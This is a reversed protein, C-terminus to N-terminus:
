NKLKKFIFYCLPISAQSIFKIQTLITGDKNRNSQFCIAYLGLDFQRDLEIIKNRVYELDEEKAEESGFDFLLQNIKPWGSQTHRDANTKSDKNKAIM